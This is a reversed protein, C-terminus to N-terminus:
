RLNGTQIYHRRAVLPRTELQKSLLPAVRQPTGIAKRANEYALELNVSSHPWLCFGGAAGRSYLVHRKRLSAMTTEIQKASVDESGLALAITKENAILGDSDLLNLLCVVKLARLELVNETAFSSILSEIKNWHSRYSQVSLRHGFSSRVYDYLNDLRFWTSATAPGDVCSM